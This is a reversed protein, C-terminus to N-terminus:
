ITVAENWISEATYEKEQEKGNLVRIVGRVMAEMEFEGAYVYVPALFGCKETIYDVLSQSHAMGGGLLIGDVCGQLVAAMAGIYKVIQYLM